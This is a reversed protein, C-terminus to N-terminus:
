HCSVPSFGPIASSKRWRRLAEIILMVTRETGLIRSMDELLDVRARLEAWLGRKFEFVRAYNRNFRQFEELAKARDTVAIAAVKGSVLAGSIGFGMFPDLSGSMTGCMILGDHFLQPSDPSTAPAAGHVYEWGDEEMGRIRQM